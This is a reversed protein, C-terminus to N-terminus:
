SKALNLVHIIVEDVTQNNLLTKVASDDIVVTFLLRANKRLRADYDLIDRSAPSHGCRRIVNELLEDVTTDPYGFSRLTAEDVLLNLLEKISDTLVSSTMTGPGGASTSPTEGVASISKVDSFQKQVIKQQEEEYVSEEMTSSGHKKRMHFEMINELDVKMERIECKFRAYM